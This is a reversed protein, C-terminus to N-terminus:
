KGLMASVKGAISGLTGSSADTGTAGGGHILGDLQSGLSAPLKDKLHQVVHEITGKAQEPSVGVKQCIKQILDDM